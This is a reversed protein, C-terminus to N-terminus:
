TARNETNKIILDMMFQSLPTPTADKPYILIDYNEPKEDLPRLIFQSRFIPDMSNYYQLTMVGAYNKTTLNELFLKYNNICLINDLNLTGYKSFFKVYFNEDDFEYAWFILPHKLLTKLSLSKFRSLSSNKHILAYVEEKQLITYNLDSFYETSFIETPMNILGFDYQLTKIKKLVEHQMAEYLSFNVNTLQSSFKNMIPTLITGTTLSTCIIKLTGALNLSTSENYENIFGKLDSLENLIIKASQVTRQGTPTLSIGSSSRTLLQTNLEEELSKISKNLSQHSIHLKESAVNLSPHKSVEVLYYLQEIRM